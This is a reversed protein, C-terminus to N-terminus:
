VDPLLHSVAEFSVYRTTGDPRRDHCAYWDPCSRGTIRSALSPPAQVAGDIRRDDPRRPGRPADSSPTYSDYKGQSASSRPEPSVFLTSSQGSIARETRRDQTQASGDYNDPYQRSNQRKASPQQLSSPSRQRKFKDARDPHMQRDLSESMGADSTRSSAVGPRTEITDNSLAPSTATTSPTRTLNKSSTPLTKGPEVAQAVANVSATRSRVATKSKKPLEPMRHLKESASGHSTDGSTAQLSNDRKDHNQAEVQKPPERSSRTPNALDHGEGVTGFPDMTRSTTAPAAASANPRSTEDSRARDEPRPGMQIHSIGALSPRAIAGPQREEGHFILPAGAAHEVEGTGLEQQQGRREVVPSSLLNVVPAADPFGEELPEQKLAVFSGDQGQALTPAKEKFMVRVARKFGEGNESAEAVAGLFTEVKEESDILGALKGGVWKLVERELLPRMEGERVKEPGGANMTVLDVLSDVSSSPDFHMQTKILSQAADIYMDDDRFRSSSAIFKCWFRVADSMPDGAINFFSMRPSIAPRALGDIGPTPPISM